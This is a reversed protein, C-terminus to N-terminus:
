LYTVILIVGSLPSIVGILVRSALDWSGKLLRFERKYFGKFSGKLPLKKPPSPCGGRRLLRQHGRFDLTM